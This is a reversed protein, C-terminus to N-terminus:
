FNHLPGKMIFNYVFVYEETRHLKDWQILPVNLERKKLNLTTEYMQIEGEGVRVRRLESGKIEGTIWVHLKTGRHSFNRIGICCIQFSHFNLNPFTTSFM